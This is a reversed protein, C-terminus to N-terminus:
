YIEQWIHGGKDAQYADMASRQKSRLLCFLRDQARLISEYLFSGYIFVPESHMIIWNLRVCLAATLFLLRILM